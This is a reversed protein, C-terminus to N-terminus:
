RKYTRTTTDRVNGARDYARIRVTFKKGYKKPDIVFSYSAATDTKVVKGNVLLQVKAIGYTDSAKALVAFKKGVKAQNKPAKGISVTPARNDVILSRSLVAENGAADFAHWGLTYKGDPVERSNIAVTRSNERGYSRFHTPTDLSAEFAIFPSTDRYGSLSVTFSGRVVSGATTSGTIVPRDNDVIVTRTLATVNGVKDRVRVTMSTPGNPVAVNWPLDLNGGDALNKSSVVEGNVILESGIVFVDDNADVALEGGQGIYGNQRPFGVTLDTPANNDVNVHVGDTTVSGSATTARTSLLLLGDFGTTDWDIGWPAATDTGVEKGDAFLTLSTVAALDEGPQTEFTVPTVGGVWYQSTFAYVKPAATAAFAPSTTILSAVLAAATVFGTHRLALTM